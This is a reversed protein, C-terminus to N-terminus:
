AGPRLETVPLRQLPRSHHSGITLRGAGIMIQIVNLVTKLKQILM